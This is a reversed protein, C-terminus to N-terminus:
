NRKVLIKTAKKIMFIYLIILFLNSAATKQGGMAPENHASALPMTGTRKICQIDYLYKKGDANNRIILNVM